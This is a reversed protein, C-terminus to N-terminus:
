AFGSQPTAGADATLAPVGTEAPMTNLITLCRRRQGEVMSRM